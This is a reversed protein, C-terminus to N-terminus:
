VCYAFTDSVCVIYDMDSKVLNFEDSEIDMSYFYISSNFCEEYSSQSEHRKPLLLAVQSESNYKAKNRAARYAAEISYCFVVNDPIRQSKVLM